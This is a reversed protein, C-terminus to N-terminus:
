QMAHIATTMNSHYLTYKDYLVYLVANHHVRLRHTIIVLDYYHYIQLFSTFVSM